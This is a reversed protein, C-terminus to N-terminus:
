SPVRGAPGELQRHLERADGPARNVEDMRAIIVLSPELDHAHGLRRQRHLPHLEDGVDFRSRRPFDHGADDLPDAAVRTEGPRVHTVDLAPSRFLTTYPFLTSRPPRRIM